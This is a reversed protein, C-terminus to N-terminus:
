EYTILVDSTPLRTHPSHMSRSSYIHISHLAPSVCVCVYVLLSGRTSVRPESAKRYRLTNLLHKIASAGSRKATTAETAPNRFPTRRQHLPRWDTLGTPAVSGAATAHSPPGRTSLTTHCVVVLPM